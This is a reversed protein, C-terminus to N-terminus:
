RASHFWRREQLKAIRAMAMRLRRNLWRHDRRLRAFVDQVITLSQDLSADPLGEGRGYQAETLCRLANELDELRRIHDVRKPANVQASAKALERSVTLPTVTASVIVRRASFGTSMLLAGRLREPEAAPDVPLQSIPRALAYGAAIRAVALTQEALEATWGTRERQRRMRALQRDIGRGIAAESLLRGSSSEKTHGESARVLGTVMLLVAIGLLVGGSTVLVRGRVSQSEVDAFTTSTADRIDSADEPVVSLLRVSQPPLVYTRELGESWADQGVGTQVRYAVPIAPVKVLKGFFADHILRLEYEYQLFRRDVTRVDSVHRGGVVEFPPLQIATPDLKTEDVTVRVSQTDLIGCTVVLSFRQGIRVASATTRSWCLLPEADRAPGTASEDAKPQAALRM